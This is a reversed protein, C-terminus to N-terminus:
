FPSLYPWQPRNTRHVEEVDLGLLPRQADGLHRLTGRVVVWSNETYQGIDSGRLAIGIPSADAICCIMLLRFGMVEPEMALLEAALQQERRPTIEAINLTLEIRRGDWQPGARYCDLLTVPTYRDDITSDAEESDYTERQVRIRASSGFSVREEAQITMSLLDGPHDALPQASQMRPGPMNWGMHDIFSAGADRPPICLLFTLPLLHALSEAPGPTVAQRTPGCFRLLAILIIVAGSISLVTQQWPAVLISSWPGLGGLLFAAGWAMALLSRLRGPWPSIM